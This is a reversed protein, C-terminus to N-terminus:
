PTKSHHTRTCAAVYCKLNSEDRLANLRLTSKRILDEFRKKSFVKKLGTVVVVAEDKSVRSIEQLTVLPNPSNQILTMAYVHSFLKEGFPMYDVDACVLHVNSFAKAYEKAVLLTKRSIDLGVIIKARNTIYDFMLGTGCGADLVFTSGSNGVSELAAEYKAKQEEAYRMDYLHATLDYRRMISRKKAWRSM